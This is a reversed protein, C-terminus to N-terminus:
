VVSKRDLGEIDIGCFHQALYESFSTINDKAMFYADTPSDAEVRFENGTRDDECDHWIVRYIM